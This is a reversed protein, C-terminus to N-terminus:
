TFSSIWAASCPRRGSFARAMKTAAVVPIRRASIQARRPARSMSQTALTAVTAHLM